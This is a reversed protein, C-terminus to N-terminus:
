TVLSCTELPPEMSLRCVVHSRAEPSRSEYRTRSTWSLLTMLFWLTSARAVLMLKWERLGPARYLTTTVVTLAPCVELCVTASPRM